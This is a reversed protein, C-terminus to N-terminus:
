RSRQRDPRKVLDRLAEGSISEGLPEIAAQIFRVFPGGLEGGEPPRSFGAERAFATEYIPMLSDCVFERWTTRDIAWYVAAATLKRELDSGPIVCPQGTHEIIDAISKDDYLLVDAGRKPTRPKTRPPASILGKRRLFRLLVARRRKRELLRLTQQADM